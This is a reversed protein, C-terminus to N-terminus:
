KCYKQITQKSYKWLKEISTITIFPNDFFIQIFNIPLKIKKDDIQKITFDILKTIRELKENTKISQQEVALLMYYVLGDWNWDKRVEQLLRYYDAKNSNIYESLYLIPLKLLWKLVLYLIMLIRWTRWNWDLFPHISEFQYHIIALKILPDIEDDSNIYNELNSLLNRITNEWIPPTYITEWLWNMIVTWPIKRIWSKNPEIISQITILTNSVITWYTEVQKIWWITADKYNLVEKDIESIKGSSVNAQFVSEITTNLNEIASSEVWEKILFSNLVLLWVNDTNNLLYANLTALARSAKSLQFFTKDSLKLSKPPLLMLDNDPNKPDFM